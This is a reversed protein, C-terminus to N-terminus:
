PNFEVKKNRITNQFVSPGRSFKRMRSANKWFQSTSVMSYYWIHFEADRITRINPGIHFNKSWFVVPHDVDHAVMVTPYHSTGNWAIGM